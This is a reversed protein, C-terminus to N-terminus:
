VAHEMLEHDNLDQFAVFSQEMVGIHNVNGLRISTYLYFHLLFNTHSAHLDSIVNYFARTLPFITKTIGVM